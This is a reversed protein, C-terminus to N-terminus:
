RQAKELVVLAADIANAAAKICIDEWWAKLDAADDGKRWRAVPDLDGNKIGELLRVAARAREVDLTAGEFRAFWPIPIESLKVPRPGAPQEGPRIPTVKPKAM